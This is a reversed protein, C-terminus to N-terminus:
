CYMYCAIPQLDIDVDVFFCGGGPSVTAGYTGLAQREVGHKVVHQSVVVDGGFWEVRARVDVYM